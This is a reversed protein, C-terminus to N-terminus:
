RPRGVTGGKQALEKQAREWGKLWARRFGRSFTVRGRSTRADGYPCATLPAGLKGAEYGARETSEYWAATM